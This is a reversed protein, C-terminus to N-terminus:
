TDILHHTYATTHVQRPYAQIYKYHTTIFIFREGVRGEEGGKEWEDRRGREERGKEREGGGRM